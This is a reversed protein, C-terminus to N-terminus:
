KEEIWAPKALLEDIRKQDVEVLRWDDDDPVEYVPGITAGQSKCSRCIGSEREADSFLPTDCDEVLYSCTMPGMGTELSFVGEGRVHIHRVQCGNSARKRPKPKTM